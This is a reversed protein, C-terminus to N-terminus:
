WKCTASSGEQRMMTRIIQRTQKTIEAASDSVSTQPEAEDTWLWLRPSNVPTYGRTAHSTSTVSNWIKHEYYV